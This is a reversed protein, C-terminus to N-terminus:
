CASVASAIREVTQQPTDGASDVICTALHVDRGDTSWREPVVAEAAQLARQVRTFRAPRTLHTHGAGLAVVATPHVELLREVAHVLADEWARHAREYGVEATLAALRAVSWGVEAYFPAAAGDADVFARDLRAALLQGVASRGAVPSGILVLAM